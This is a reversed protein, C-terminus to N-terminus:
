GSATGTGAVSGTSSRPAQQCEACLPDPDVVYVYAAQPPPVSDGTWPVLLLM